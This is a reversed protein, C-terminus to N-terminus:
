LLDQFYTLYICWDQEKELGTKIWFRALIKMSTTNLKYILKLPVLMKFCPTKNDMFM